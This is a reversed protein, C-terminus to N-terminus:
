KQWDHSECRKPQAGASDSLRNGASDSQGMVMTQKKKRKWSTEDVLCVLEQEVLEHLAAVAEVLNGSLRKQAASISGLSIKVAFLEEM